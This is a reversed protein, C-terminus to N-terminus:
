ASIAALPRDGPVAGPRAARGPYRAAAVTSLLGLLVDATAQADALARHSPAVRTAFFEALTALKCDPVQDQSLVLRALVATDLVAAPPWGIGHSRCGSTLFGLDFPANHAVLVCGRAFALFAPLAAAASPARSVMADTIGTLSTIDPPVPAAPNVLSFFEGTVETGGLRVAGIEIITAREPDFGTTEVDVVVLDLGSVLAPIGAVDPRVALEPAAPLAPGATGARGAALSTSRQLVTGGETDAGDLATGGRLDTGDYETGDLRHWRATCRDPCTKV